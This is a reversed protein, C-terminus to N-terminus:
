GSRLSAFHLSRSNRKQGDSGVAGLLFDVVRWKDDRACGLHGAERAGGAAM